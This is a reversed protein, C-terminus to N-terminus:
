DSPQGSLILVAEEAVREARQWHSGISLAAPKQFAEPCVPTSLCTGVAVSREVRNLPLQLQYAM